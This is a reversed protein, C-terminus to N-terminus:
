HSVKVKRQPGEDPRRGKEASPSGMLFTGGKIPLMEFSVLTNPIEQTYPKMGRENISKHKAQIKSYISDVIKGEDEVAVAHKRPRLMLGEPWYAGQEIWLKVLTIEEKTPRQQKKEPPMVLEDDKPLTMLEYITSEAPKGPTIGTGERGGKFASGKM